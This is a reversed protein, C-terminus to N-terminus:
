RALALPLVSVSHASTIQRRRYGSTTLPCRHLQPNHTGIGRDPHIFPLDEIFLFFLLTFSIRQRHPQSFRTVRAAEWSAIGVSPLTITKGWLQDRVQRGQAAPYVKCSDGDVGSGM